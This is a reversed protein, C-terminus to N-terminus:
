PRHRTKAECTRWNEYCHPPTGRRDFNKDVPSMFVPVVRLRQYLPLLAGPTTWHVQGPAMRTVM